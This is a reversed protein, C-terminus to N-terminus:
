PYFFGLHGLELSVNNGLKAVTMIVNAFQWTKFAYKVCVTSKASRNIYKYKVSDLYLWEM